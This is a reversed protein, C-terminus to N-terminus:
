SAHSCSASRRRRFRFSFHTWIDRASRINEPLERVLSPEILCLLIFRARREKAHTNLSPEKRDITDMLEEKELYARTMITWYKYNLANLKEIFQMEM